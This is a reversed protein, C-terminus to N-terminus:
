KRSYKRIYEESEVDVLITWPTEIHTGFDHVRQEFRAPVASISPTALADRLASRIFDRTSIGRKKAAAELQAALNDDIELNTIM